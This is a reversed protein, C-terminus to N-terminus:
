LKPNLRYTAQLGIVRRDGAAEWSAVPPYPPPSLISGGIYAYQKDALNKGFLAVEIAENSTTFSVRANLLGFADQGAPFNPDQIVNFEVRDRWDYDGRIRVLGKSVPIDYTASVSADYKPTMYFKNNKADNGFSDIFQTYKADTWGFSAHLFWHRTAQLSSELELGNVDAKGANIVYTTPTGGVLRALLRQMDDYKGAFVASNISFRGQLGTAKLGLEVDTLQEPKFPQDVLTNFPINWGGSRQARGARIYTMANDNLRYNTTAEWSWYHYGVERQIFPCPGGTLAGLPIANVPDTVITCFQGPPAPALDLYANDILSRTDDTYRAGGAVSWRPDIQWIAHAFGALSKNQVENTEVTPVPPGPNLPGPALESDASGNDRFAYGGAIWNWVNNATHGTLQLEASKQYSVSKLNVDAIPVIVADADYDNTAHMDRYGLILKAGFQETFRQSITLQWAETRAVDSLNKGADTQYFDSPITVGPFQSALTNPLPHLLAGAENATFVEYTLYADTASSPQWLAAVRVQDRRQNMLDNQGTAISSGWGDRQDHQYAVRFGLTSNVPVNVIARGEFLSESGGTASVEGSYGSLDPRNSSIVISGGTNNRGFLTGQTGRLIEVQSVDLLTAMAGQGNAVYVGDVYLGVAPDYVISSPIAAQGRITVELASVSRASKFATVNPAQQAADEFLVASQQQLEPGSLVTEAVPVDILKEERRRATVIVEELSQVPRTEVETAVTQANSRAGVMLLLSILATGCALSGPGVGNPRAPMM